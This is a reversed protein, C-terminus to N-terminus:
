AACAAEPGNATWPVVASNGALRDRLSALLAPPIFPMDWAVVIVDTKAQALAAHIGILSGRASVLDGVVVADPIWGEGEWKAAHPALEARAFDRATDRIMRQEDTLFDSRARTLM